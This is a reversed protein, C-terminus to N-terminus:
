EYEALKEIVKVPLLKFFERKELNHATELWEVVADSSKTHHKVTTSVDIDIFATSGDPLWPTVFEPSCARVVVETGDISLMYNVNLPPNQTESGIAVSVNLDSFSTIYHKEPNVINVYRLGCRVIKSQFKTCILQASKAFIKSVKDWGGYKGLNHVSLVSPGVKFQLKKDASIFVVTPQHKLNPDQQRISWPIDAIPLQHRSFKEVELGDILKAMIVEPLEDSQFRLELLAEVIFDEKLKSPLSM